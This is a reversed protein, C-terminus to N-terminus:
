RSGLLSQDCAEHYGCGVCLNRQNHSREVDSKREHRRIDAILDLLASELAPTYDVAFTRQPYKIVGYAPRTGLAREVLLCYAALQFIHSDYPASPTRGSKVEVPIIAQGDEILYDPRGTIDLKPDYLPREVKGWQSTDSYIIRGGPLGAEHRQKAGRFLLFLAALFIIFIILPEM